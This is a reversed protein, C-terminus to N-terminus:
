PVTRLIRFGLNIGRYSANYRNRDSVRSYWAVNCWGGGRFVRDPASADVYVPDTVSSSYERYGSDWVWEYVNGSMDYLGYGNENKEGVPHTKDGSNDYYWAVEDIKDSGAYLHEEGGRAWYDWEAETPLRYGNANQNWKVEQSLADISDDWGSSQNRCADVLGEPLVYCPELGERESLKNCFLVADCWSVKEVPRMSGVFVSPNHGMVSAYLGQTCAYVCVKMSKSLTVKHRPSEDDYAEEDDAGMMFRGAPVEVCQLSGLVVKKQQSESLDDWSTNGLVHVELSRFCDGVYLGHWISGEQIVEELICREWLLPHSVVDERVRLQGDVEHLVACLGSGDLSLLLDFTSKVQTEDPSSLLVMFTSADEQSLADRISTWKEQLEAFIM